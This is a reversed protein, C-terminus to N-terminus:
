VRTNGELRKQDLDLKHLTLPGVVGDPDLGYHKQYNIVAQKTGYGYKGDVLSLYGYYALTSQVLTVARDYPEDYSWVRLYCYTHGNAIGNLRSSQQYATSELASVATASISAIFCVLLAIAIIRRIKGKM